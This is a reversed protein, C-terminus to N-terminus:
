VAAPPLHSTDPTNDVNGNADDNNRQSPPKPHRSM